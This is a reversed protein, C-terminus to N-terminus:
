ETVAPPACVSDSRCEYGSYCSAAGGACDGRGFIAIRTDSRASTTGARAAFRAARTVGDVTAELQMELSYPGLPLAALGDALLRVRYQGPIARGVNELLAPVDDAREVMSYTGETACALRAFDDLAGHRNVPFCDEARDARDLQVVHVTVGANVVADLAAQPTLGQAQAADISREDTDGDTFVVIHRDYNGPLWEDFRDAADIIAAWPQRGSGAEEQNAIAQIESDLFSEDTVRQFCDAVLDGDPHRYDPESQGAFTAVCLRSDSALESERLQRLLQTVGRTRRDSRDTSCDFQAPTGDDRQGLVSAGNTMLVIIAQRDNSNGGVFELDANPSVDIGFDRQCVLGSDTTSQADDLPGCTFGANALEAVPCASGEVDADGCFIDPSPFVRGGAGTVRLDDVSFNQNLTLTFKGLRTGPWIPGQDTDLLTFRIEPERDNSTETCQTGVAGPSTVESFSPQSFDVRATPACGAAAGSALGLAAAVWRARQTARPDLFPLISM